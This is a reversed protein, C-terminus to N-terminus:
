GQRGYRGHGADDSLFRGTTQYASLVSRYSHMAHRITSEAQKAILLADYEDMAATRAISEVADVKLKSDSLYLEARRAHYTREWASEAVALASSAAEHQDILETLRDSIDAITRQVELLSLPETM